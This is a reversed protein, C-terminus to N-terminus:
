PILFNSKNNGKSKNVVVKATIIEGIITKGRLNISEVKVLPTWNLREGKPALKRKPKVRNLIQM